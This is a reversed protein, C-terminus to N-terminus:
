PGTLGIPDHRARYLSRMIKGLFCSKMWVDELSVVQFSYQARNEPLIYMAGSLLPFCNVRLTGFLIQLLHCENKKKKKWLFCMKVNWTFWRGPLHNVHFTLVQKRQFIFFFYFFNNDAATTVPAELTFYIKKNRGSFMYICISTGPPPAWTSRILHGPAELLLGCCIKSCFYVFFYGCKKTSFFFM